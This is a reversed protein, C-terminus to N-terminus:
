LEGVGERLQRILVEDDIGIRRRKGEGDLAVCLLRWRWWKGETGLFWHRSTRQESCDLFAGNREGCEAAMGNISVYCNNMGGLFLRFKKRNRQKKKWHIISNVRQTHQQQLTARKHHRFVFTTKDFGRREWCQSSGRTKGIRVRGNRHEQGTRTRRKMLSSWMSSRAVRWDGLYSM